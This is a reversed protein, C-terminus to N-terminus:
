HRWLCTRGKSNGGTQQQQQWTAATTDSQTRGWLRCVVLIGRGQSEGPLFVPTPQWQRRWHMFTFLSLSTAWDHRVWDLPSYFATIALIRGGTLCSSTWWASSHAVRGRLPLVVNQWLWLWAPTLCLTRQIELESSDWTLSELHGHTSLVLLVICKLPNEANVIQLCIAINWHGKIWPCQFKFKM